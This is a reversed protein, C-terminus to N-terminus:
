QLLVTGNGDEDETYAMTLKGDQSAEFFLEIRGYKFISPTRHKRSTGGTDDPEGIAAVVENRTM